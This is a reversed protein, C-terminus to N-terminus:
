TGNEEAPSSKENVERLQEFLTFASLSLICPVNHSSINHCMRSTRLAVSCAGNAQNGAETHNTM